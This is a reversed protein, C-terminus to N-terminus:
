PEIFSPNGRDDGGVILAVGECHRSGNELGGRMQM